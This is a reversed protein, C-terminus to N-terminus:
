PFSLALRFGLYSDRDDPEGGGRFAVRCQDTSHALGGGRIVRARGSSPGRPDRVPESPYAGYWDAVWEWVNGHMDYLGWDNPRKGGVTHPERGSNAEYWAYMGLRQEADGFHYAAQTGARAAYEWEAETPLRYSAREEHANLRDIFTQVDEWSVREVPCLYCNSFRSPNNGMVRRWQAQTVEYKGLYFARSITVQHVPKERPTINDAGMQFEGPQILVFEMGIGNTFEASMALAARERAAREAMERQRRAEEAAARAAAERQQRAEEAAAREAAERERRQEEVRRQEAAAREAAERQQRQEEVRRQEAAAREAAERERRQEEVRRQEAAAREAAERQQRVEEAAAREAAERERQEEARRREATRARAILGDAQARTLFGTAEFGEATQWARLAQRTAPGFLGDVLEVPYNLSVLGRQVMVRAEQDLGLGWELCLRAAAAYAGNPYVQLYAQVEDERECNVSGWFADEIERGAQARVVAPLVLLLLLIVEGGTWRVQRGRPRRM